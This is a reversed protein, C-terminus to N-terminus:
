EDKEGKAADEVAIPGDPDVGAEDETGLAEPPDLGEDQVSDDPKSEAASDDKDSTLEVPEESGM